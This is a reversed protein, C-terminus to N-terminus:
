KGEIQLWVALDTLEEMRGQLLLRRDNIKLIDKTEATESLKGNLFVLQDHLKMTRNKVYPILERVVKETLIM